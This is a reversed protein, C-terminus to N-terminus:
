SFRNSEVDDCGSVLMAESGNVGTTSETKATYAYTTGVNLGQMSTAKYDAGNSTYAGTNAVKALLSDVDSLTYTKASNTSTSSNVAARAVTGVDAVSFVMMVCLIITIIRFCIRRDKQHM